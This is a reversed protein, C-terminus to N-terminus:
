PQEPDTFTTLGSSSDGAPAKRGTATAPNVGGGIRATAPATELRPQGAALLADSVDLSWVNSHGSRDSVFFVRDNGGWAPMLNTSIDGTLNTLGTGDINMLYVDGDSPTEGTPDTSDLGVRSFAVRLGDASWAPNILAANADSAIETLNRVDTGIVEMTWISFLRSGRERSRQFVIREGGNIGTGAVPSWEPFLGYGVHYAVLPNDVETIWIEWRGSMEGLRCFALRSGDPSWTPHLNNGNNQTIPQAQGGNVDTIYIDWTGTRDSAFAIRDGLPSISPMVDHAPDTTIQRVSRGDVAKIYIDATERHRTSAFYVHRGDPTLRPDFDAGETTFTVQTVDFPDFGLGASSRESPRARGAIDGFLGLDGLKGRRTPENSISNAVTAAWSTEDDWMGGAGSPATESATTGSGIPRTQMSGPVNSGDSSQQSPGMASIRSSRGDATSRCGGVALGSMLLLALTMTTRTPMM